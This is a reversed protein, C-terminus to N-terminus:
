KRSLAKGKIIMLISIGIALLFLPGCMKPPLADCFPQLANHVKTTWGWDSWGMIQSIFAPVSTILGTLGLAKLVRSVIEKGLGETILGNSEAFLEKYMKSENVSAGLEAVEPEGMDKAASKLDELVKPDSKALKVIENKATSIANKITDIFDSIMGETILDTVFSEVVMELQQKTVKYRAM